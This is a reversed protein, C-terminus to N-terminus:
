FLAQLLISSLLYKLFSHFIFLHNEQVFVKTRARRTKMLPISSISRAPKTLSLHSFLHGRGKWIEAGTVQWRAFTAASLGLMAGGGAPFNSSSCHEATAGSLMQFIILGPFESLFWTSLNHPHLGRTKRQAVLYTQPPKKLSSSPRLLFRPGSKWSRPGSPDQNLCLEGRVASPNCEQHSIQGLSVNM